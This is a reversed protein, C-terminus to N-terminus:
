VVGDQIHRKRSRNGWDKALFIPRPFYTFSNPISPSTHPPFANGGFVDGEIGVEKVPVSEIIIWSGTEM